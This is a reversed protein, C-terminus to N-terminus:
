KREKVDVVVEDWVEGCAIGSGDRVRLKAVYRGPKAYAHAVKAGTDNQGDGFDWFFTLPDKDLDSSGTADFNVADHAGGVFAERDPGAQAIPPHNVKVTLKSESVGCTAGSDDTLKLAAEFRGPATYAHTAIAGESSAGDGFDWKYSMVKGDRDTSRSGDFRVPTAACVVQDPGAIAVPRENVIFQLTTRNLSNSVGADDEATLSVQYKGPSRFVHTATAGQATQGDGFDWELRKIVGDRDVSGTSSFRAEDGPCGQGAIAIVPAPADNVVVPVNSTVTGNEVGSDDTVTLQANFKGPKQYRHRVLAGMANQGDGFDWRYSVISGDGDKSRSADFSIEQNVGASKPAEAQALPAENAVILNRTSTSACATGSDTGVTLTAFYNGPKTYAHTVKAGEATQGDGFDWKFSVFKAGEPSSLSGDFSTAAGLSVVRPTKFRAIPAAYVIITAAKADTNDCTGIEDGTVTLTARYTGAQAYTHTPTAGLGTSGDGFDWAFANVLGDFDRSKSGDFRVESNACVKQDPGADAVPAEAVRVAIRDISASCVLGSDDTVTLTAQYAGGKAYTKTPNVAEAKSGDGFDWQYKLLGGEPDQSRNGSFIAPKGACATKEGGADATPSRNIVVTIGATNRANVLRTGDDVTLVVPYSGGVAYTHTVVAGSQAPTGDGFNWSYSLPDGDPDASASADVTVSSNCTVVDQGARARPESNVKITVRDSAASNIAGSDDTVSLQATYIGPRDFVRSVKATAAGAQGDSFTWQYSAIRGDRDHAAGANLEVRQGPAVLLSPGAVAIPPANIRVVGEDFALGSEHGSDDRVALRVTYLGPEAFKHTVTQGSAKGGDGFEWAYSTIEGDPDLSEAASFTIAQGPAGLKDPGADAIPVQNVVIVADDSSEANRTQSDDTVTLRVRYTGARRYVHVPAPGEGRTQDGFDWAYRTITGDADTSAKGDFRVESTTVVRNGGARSVPAQNVVVKSTTTRTGSPLGSNDRVTLTVTYTKAEPYAYEVRVGEARAGNGFDWEWAVLGGDKDTSASGDFSIVEGVAVRRAAGANATPPANVVVVLEGTSTSNPASADDKVTLRVRYTGPEKYAHSPTRGEGTAGDGFEWRWETVAGDEDFSRGGDFRVDEAASARRNDGPVAVPPANIRVSLGTEAWGCSAKSDDEVRLRARYLGPKSYAHTAKVGDARAADGFDWSYRAIAGDSDSSASGDFSLAVGPAGILDAGPRAKPPDNVVVRVRQATSNAVQGSADSVVLQADYTGSKKYSHTLRAGVGTEGDGFSWTFELSEGDEDTSASADLAVSLCDSVPATRASAVPRRNRKWLLAPLEFPIPGESGSASFSADNPTEEGGEFVLAAIKGAPVTAKADLWESQGSSTLPVDALPTALALRAGALDFSGVTLESGALPLAFKLETVLGPAPNRISPVYSVVRTGEPIVNKTEDSSVAIDFVNGDDGSLGEIVLKFVARDGAKEGAAPDLKTLVSWKNNLEADVGVTREILMQGGQLDAATPTRGKLNSGTTAGAGGYVAFRTRTDWGGNRTDLDGGSDADLVRLYLPQSATAPISVFLVQRSSDGKSSPGYTVLPARDSAAATLPSLAAVGALLWQPRPKLLSV